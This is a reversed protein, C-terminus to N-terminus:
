KSSANRNTNISCIISFCTLVNSLMRLRSDDQCLISLVGRFVKLKKLFPLNIENDDILIWAKSVMFESFLNDRIRFEDRLTFPHIRLEDLLPHIANFRTM